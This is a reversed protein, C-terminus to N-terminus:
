LPKRIVIPQQDIFDGSASCLTAVLNGVANPQLITSQDENPALKERLQTATRGPCVCYVKIDYPKLEESMTLSFNILGAKAAAYASWGPRASMGATSAINIIKGGLSKNWLVFRQTCLMTATLNTALTKNWNELTTELLGVPDVYGANNVLVSAGGFRTRVANFVEEVASPDQLDAEFTAIEVNEDSIAELVRAETEALGDVSRAIAAISYGRLALSVAISQGIGRSAGTIIAVKRGSGNLSDKHKYNMM